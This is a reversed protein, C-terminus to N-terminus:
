RTRSKGLADEQHCDNREIIPAHEDAALALASPDISHELFRPAAPAARKDDAALGPDALASQELVGHRPRAIGSDHAREADLGLRLERVGAQVLEHAGQEVPEDSM